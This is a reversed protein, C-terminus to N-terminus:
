RDYKWVYKSRQWQEHTDSGCLYADVSCNRHGDRRAFGGEPFKSRRLCVLVRDVERKFVGLLSRVECINRQSPIV